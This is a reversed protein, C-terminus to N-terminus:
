GASFYNGIKSFFALRERSRWESLNKATQKLAKKLKINNTERWEEGADHTNSQHDHTKMQQMQSSVRKFDTQQLAGQEQYVKFSITIHSGPGCLRQPINTAIALLVNYPDFNDKKEKIGFIM